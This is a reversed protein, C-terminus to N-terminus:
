QARQDEKYEGGCDRIFWDINWSERFSFMVKVLGEVQNRRVSLFIFSRAQKLSQVYSAYREPLGGFPLGMYLIVKGGFSSVFSVLASEVSTYRHCLVSNLKLFGDFLNWLTCNCMQM